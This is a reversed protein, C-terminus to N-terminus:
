SEHVSRFIIYNGYNIRNKEIAYGNKLLHINLRLESSDTIPVIDLDHAM